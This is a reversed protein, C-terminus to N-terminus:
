IGLKYLQLLHILLVVSPILLLTPGWIAILSRMPVISRKLGILILLSALLNIGIIQIVNLVLSPFPEQMEGSSGSHLYAMYRVGAYGTVLSLLVTGIIILVIALAREPIEKGVCSIYFAMLMGASVLLLPIALLGFIAVDLFSASIILLSYALSGRISKM